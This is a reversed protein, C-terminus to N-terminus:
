AAAEYGITGRIAYGSAWIWPTLSDMVGLGTGAGTPLPDGDVRGSSTELYFLGSTAMRIRGSARGGVSGANIEVWGACSDVRAATYPLSFQWNDGTSAGSGFNTTSGFIIEFTGMVSRGIKVANGSVQANGYSPLASGTSTTWTPAWTPWPGPDRLYTEWVTGNWRRLNTGDDWVQGVYPSPPAVASPLIGGPAVTVPRTATSVSAAGGGSAPVSITALPIYIQTGAPIPATPSASATGALYVADAQRLGSADVDTDWVRLYVLDIRALTAHAAQLTGPSTSASLAVRYVGQGTRSILAVGASVNITSGALTVTLGPDGPRVGSRAGLATGDGMVMMSDVRRVEAGDYTLTNQIWPDVPM